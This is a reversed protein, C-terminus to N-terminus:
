VTVFNSYTYGALDNGDISVVVLLVLARSAFVRNGERDLILLFNEREREATKTTTQKKITKSFLM